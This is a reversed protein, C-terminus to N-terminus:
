DYHNYPVNLGPLHLTGTVAIIFHHVTLYYIILIYCLLQIIKLVKEGNYRFEM